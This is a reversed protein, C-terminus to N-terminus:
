PNARLIEQKADKVLIFFNELMRDILSLNKSLGLVERGKECKLLETLEEVNSCKLIERMNLVLYIPDVVTYLLNFNWMHEFNEIKTFFESNPEQYNNEELFKMIRAFAEATYYITENEKIGYGLQIKSHQVLKFFHELISRTDGEKAGLLSPIESKECRLSIHILEALNPAKDDSIEQTVYQEIKELISKDPNEQIYACFREFAEGTYPPTYDEKPPVAKLPPIVCFMGLIISTLVSFIRKKNM